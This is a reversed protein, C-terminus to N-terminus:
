SHGLIMKNFAEGVKEEAEDAATIDCIFDCFSKAPVNHHFRNTCSGPFLISLEFHDEKREASVKLNGVIIDFSLM